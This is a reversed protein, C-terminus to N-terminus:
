YNFNATEKIIIIVASCHLPTSSPLWFICNGQPLVFPPPTHVLRGNFSVRDLIVYSYLDSDFPRVFARSGSGLWYQKTNNVRNWAAGGSGGQMNVKEEPHLAVTSDTSAVAQTGSVTISYPRADSDSASSSEVLYMYNLSDGVAEVVADNTSVILSGEERTGTQAGSARRAMSRTVVTSGGTTLQAAAVQEAEDLNDGAFSSESSSPMCLKEEDGM